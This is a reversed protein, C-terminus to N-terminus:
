VVPSSFDSPEDIVSPLLTLDGSPGPTPVAPEGAARALEGFTDDPIGRLAACCESCMGIHESFTSLESSPLDGRAFAALTEPTPHTTVAM